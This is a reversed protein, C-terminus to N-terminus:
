YFKTPSHQLNNKQQQSSSIFQPKKIMSIYNIHLIINTESISCLSKVNVDLLDLLWRDGHLTVVTNIVM